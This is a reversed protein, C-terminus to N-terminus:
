FLVSLNKAVVVNQDLLITRAAIRFAEGDPRLTDYREGVWVDIESELRNRYLVFNLRVDLDGDARSAVRVNTVLHRARSPPDESWHKGSTMQAVRRGLSEKTEDFHAMEIRDPIESTGRQRRLRNHRLPMWYRVDDTFLELWEPWKWEDLLQAEHYLFQEVRHQLVIDAMAPAEAGVSM